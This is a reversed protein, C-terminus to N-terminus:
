WRWIGSEGGGGYVAKVTNEDCGYVHVTTSHAPNSGTPAVPTYHALNGGGYVAKIAYRLDSSEDLDDLDFSTIDPYRNSNEDDTHATKYVNVLVDGKPTGNTNNCGFVSGNITANGYTTLGSESVIGTGINVTIDGYVDAAHTATGLGGGYLNGNLTGSYFVVSTTKNATPSLAAPDGTLEANVLGEASGGYVDGWITADGSITPDTATMAGLEVAVSGNVLTQNGLGGGFVLTPFTAPANEWATGITGGTIAVKTDGSVTGSTNCGGYVGTKVNGAIIKVDTGATNETGAENGGGFVNGVFLRANDGATMNVEVEAKETARYPNYAAQNGGGFVAAVDISQGDVAATKTVLVKVHGKPTGNINNAGFVRGHNTGTVMQTGAVTVLVDGYETAVKAEIDHEPDALRGLGGGYADGKITGGTLNVKTERKKYYTGTSASGTAPTYTYPASEGTRNFYGTLNTEKTITVAIYPDNTLASNDWNDTNTNALAGGGYVNGHETDIQTNGIQGAKINVEVSGQVDALNGGGYVNGIVKVQASAHGAMMLTMLLVAVTLRFGHNHIHRKNM